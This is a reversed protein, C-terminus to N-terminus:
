FPSKNSTETSLAPTWKFSLFSVKPVSSLASTFQNENRNKELKPKKGGRNFLKWECNCWRNVMLVSSLYITNSVALRLISKLKIVGPNYSVTVRDRVSSYHESVGYSGPVQYSFIFHKGFFSLSDEVFPFFRPLFSISIYLYVLFLFEEHQHKVPAQKQQNTQKELKSVLVWITAYVHWDIQWEELIVCAVHFAEKWAEGKCRGHDEM